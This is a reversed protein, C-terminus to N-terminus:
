SLLQLHSLSSLVGRPDLVRHLRSLRSSSGRFGKSAGISGGILAASVGTLAVTSVASVDISGGSAVIGTNAGTRKSVRWILKRSPRPQHQSPCLRLRQLSRRRCLLRKSRHHLRWSPPAAALGGLLGLLLTRRDM